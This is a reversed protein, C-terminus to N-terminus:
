KKLEDAVIGKYQPIHDKVAPALFPQKKSRATGTEVWKGYIVDTGIAVTDDSELEHTISDQLRGTDVPCRLVAYAEATMGIKKLARLVAKDFESLVYRSNDKIETKMGDGSETKSFIQGFHTKM